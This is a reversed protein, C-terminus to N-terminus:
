EVKKVIANEFAGTDLMEQAKKHLENTYLFLLPLKKIQAEMYAASLDKEDCKSKNKAKCFYTINGVVSPVKLVFNMEANKRLVEKQELLIKKSRFYDELQPLFEETIVARKKLVTPASRERIKATRKAPTKDEIGKSGATKEEKEEKIKEGVEGLKLQGEKKLEAKQEEKIIVERKSEEKEVTKKWIEEIKKAREEESLTLSSSQPMSVAKENKEEVKEEAIKEVAEKEVGVLRERILRNTEEESLLHWKWFLEITDRFTVHLPLAFDKMGRLAVKPLLELEKERLVQKEKLMNLVQLDQPNLNGAAFRELQEEQGSLYYLPSGGVKLNSIKLKGQSSLDALHASAILIESKIIKAVKSPLSPGNVSLFQLIRDQDSM